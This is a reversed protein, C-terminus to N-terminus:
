LRIFSGKQLAEGLNCFDFSLLEAETCEFESDDIYNIVYFTNSDEHYSIHKSSRLGGNLVVCCEVGDKALEKLHEIDKIQIPKDM